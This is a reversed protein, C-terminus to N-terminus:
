TRQVSPPPWVGAVEGTETLHSGLKSLLALLQGADDEGLNRIPAASLRDTHLEVENRFARGRDTYAGDADLLARDRLRGQAAFWEQETWGRIAALTPQNGHGGAAMLLHCETGDIEAAALAINHSDGRYERWINCAHWLRMIPEDPWPLAALAASLPRSGSELTSVATEALTAAREISPQFESGDFIRRLAENVLEDRRVLVQAPTMIQWVGPIAREVMRPAFNYFIAVVPAPGVPGLPASRYGLYAHWWGKFGDSRFGNIEATYYNVMNVLDAARALRRTTRLPDFSDSGADM